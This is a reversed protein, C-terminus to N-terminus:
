SVCTDAGSLPQVIWSERWRVRVSESSYGELEASADRAGYMTKLLVGVQDEGDTTDEEALEISVTREIEPHFMFRSVDFALIIHDDDKQVEQEEFQEVKRAVDKYQDAQETMFNSLVMKLCELPSTATLTGCMTSDWVKLDRPVLHSRFEPRQQNGKNVDIWKVTVFQGGVAIACPIKCYVGFEDVEERRAANIKVPDLMAGSINGCYVELEAPPNDFDVADEDVHVGIEM